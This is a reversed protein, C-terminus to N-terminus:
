NGSLTFVSVDGNYYVLDFLPASYEVPPLRKLGINPTIFQIQFDANRLILSSSGMQRLGQYTSQAGEYLFDDSSISGNTVYIPRYAIPTNPNNVAFLSTLWADAFYPESLRPSLFSVAAVDQTHVYFTSVVPDANVVVFGTVPMVILVVLVALSAPSFKFKRSTFFLPPAALVLLLSGEAPRPAGTVVVGILFAVLALGVLVLFTWSQEFSPSNARRSHLAISVTSYGSLILLIVAPLILMARSILSYGEVLPNTYGSNAFLSNYFLIFSRPSNIVEPVFNSALPDNFLETVVAVLASAFFTSLVLAHRRRNRALLSIGLGVLVLSPFVFYLEWGIASYILSIPVILLLLLLSDLVKRKNSGNLYGVTLGLVLIFLTVSLWGQAFRYSPLLSYNFVFFTLGVLMAPRYFMCTRKYFFFLSLTILAIPLPSTEFNIAPINTVLHLVLFFSTDAVRVSESNIAGQIWTSPSTIPNIVIHGSVQAISVQSFPKAFTWYQWYNPPFFIASVLVSLLIAIALFFGDSKAAQRPRM